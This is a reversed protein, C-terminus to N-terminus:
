AIPSGAVAGTYSGTLNRDDTLTVDFSIEYTQTAELYTINLTADKFAKANGNFKSYNGDIVWADHTNLFEETLRAKEAQQAMTQSYSVISFLIIGITLLTKKIM